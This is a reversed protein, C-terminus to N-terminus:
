RQTQCARRYEDMRSLYDAEPGLGVEARLKDLGAENELPQVKLEGAVCAAQTGYRQKGALKLMVRDYLYAYNQQSVEHDAVLPEMLRLAHLQFVPDHDAHQAILWADGAAEEGVEFVKPWGRKAVISKLWETNAYDEEAMASAMRARLIAQGTSSLKPAASGGGSSWILGGRITQEGVIRAELQRTLTQLREPAEASRRALATAALFGDALPSAALAERQFAAFSGVDLPFPEGYGACQDPALAISEIQVDPYGEARLKERLDARAADICQGFWDRISQFQAKEQPTADEFRGKLWGYDGPAFHGDKIYPQLV